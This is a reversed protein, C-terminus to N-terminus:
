LFERGEYRVMNDGRNKEGFKFKKSQIPTYGILLTTTMEPSFCHSETM